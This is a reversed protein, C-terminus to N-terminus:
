KGGNGAVDKDSLPAVAARRYPRKESDGGADGHHEKREPRADEIQEGVPFPSYGRFHL